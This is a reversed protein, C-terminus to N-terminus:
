LGEVWSDFGRPGWRDAEQRQKWAAELFPGEEERRARELHDLNKATRALRREMEQQEKLRESMLDKIM